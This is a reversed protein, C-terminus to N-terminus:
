FKKCMLNIIISQNILIILNKLIFYICNKRLKIIGIYIFYNCLIKYVVFQPFM